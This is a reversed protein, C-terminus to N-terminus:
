SLDSIATVSKKSMFDTHEGWLSNEVHRYPRYPNLLGNEVWERMERVWKNFISAQLEGNYTTPPAVKLFAQQYKLKDILGKWKAPIHKKLDKIASQDKSGDSESASEFPNIRPNDSDLGSSPSSDSSGPNDPLPKKGRGATGFIARQISSEQPLTGCSRLKSQPVTCPTASRRVMVPTQTRHADTAAKKDTRELKELYCKLKRKAHEQETEPPASHAAVGDCSGAHHDEISCTTCGGARSSRKSLSRAAAVKRSHTKTRMDIAQKKLRKLNYQNELHQLRRAYELDAELQAKRLEEEPDPTDMDYKPWKGKKSLPTHNDSPTNTAKSSKRNSPSAQASYVAIRPCPPRKYKGTSSRRSQRTSSVDSIGGDTGSDTSSVHECGPSILPLKSMRHELRSHSPQM